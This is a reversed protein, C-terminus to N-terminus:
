ECWEAIRKGSVQNVLRRSGTDIQTDIGLEKSLPFLRGGELSASVSVTVKMAALLSSRLLM